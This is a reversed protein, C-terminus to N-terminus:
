AVVQTDLSRFNLRQNAQQPTMLASIYKLEQITESNKSYKGSYNFDSALIQKSDSVRLTLM